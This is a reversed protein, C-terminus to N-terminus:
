SGRLARPFTILHISQGEVDVARSSAGAILHGDWSLCFLQNNGKHQLSVGQLLPQKIPHLGLEAGEDQRHSLLDLTKGQAANRLLFFGTPLGLHAWEHNFLADATRSRAPRNEIPQAMSAYPPPPPRSDASPERSSASPGSRDRVALTPQRQEATTMTRGCSGTATDLTDVSSSSLSTPLPQGLPAWNRSCKYEAYNNMAFARFRDVRKVRAQGSSCRLERVTQVALHSLVLHTSRAARWGSDRVLCSVNHEGTSM